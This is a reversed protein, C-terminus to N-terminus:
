VGFEHAYSRIALVVSGGTVRFRESEARALRSTLCATISGFWASVGRAGVDRCLM